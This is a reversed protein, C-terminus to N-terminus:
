MGDFETSGRPAPAQGAPGYWQGAVPTYAVASVSGAGSRASGKARPALSADAMAELEFRVSSGSPDTAAVMVILSTLPLSDFQSCSERLIYRYM